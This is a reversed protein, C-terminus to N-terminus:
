EVEKPPKYADPKLMWAIVEFESFRWDSFEYWEKYEESYKATTTFYKGAKDKMTVLVARRRKPYFIPLRESVPIWKQVTVGNAILHDALAEEFTMGEHTPMEDILRILRILKERDTM